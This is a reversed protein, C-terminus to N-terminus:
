YTCLSGGFFYVIQAPITEKKLISKNENSLYIELSFSLCLPLDEMQLNPGWTAALLQLQIEEPDGAHTCSGLIQAM